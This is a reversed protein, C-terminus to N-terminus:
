IQEHQKKMNTKKNNKTYMNVRTLPTLTEIWPTRKTKSKNNERSPKSKKKKKNNEAILM